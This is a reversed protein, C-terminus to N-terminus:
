LLGGSIMHIIDAPMLTAPLLSSPTRSNKGGSAMRASSAM